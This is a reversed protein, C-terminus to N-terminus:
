IISTATLSTFTPGSGTYGIRVIISGTYAITGFTIYRSTATSNAVVVASVGDSVSGPNGVGSYAANGDVWFTAGSIKVQVLLNAQGISTINSSGIFNLTFVKNSNFTGVNFTVWRIGSIGSYNPGGFSTYNVSPYIYSGNLMQLEDTNVLLSTGSNSGWTGGFGSSPYSGTGSVLRSSENSGDYRFIGTWGTTAGALTNSRNKAQITFALSETYSNSITVNQSGVLGTDGTVTPINSIDGNFSNLGTTSTSAWIPSPAYFYTCVNSISFSTIPIQASPQLSPVGSVFRTMSPMTGMVLNIVSPSNATTNDIYFTTGTKGQGTPHEFYLNRPTIGPTINGSQFTISSFGTCGTWFGAQGSVGFYPDAITYRLIGSSKTTSGSTITTTDIVSGNYDKITFVFTGNITRANVGTGVTSSVTFSPTQTSTVINTTISATGIIRSTSVGTTLVPTSSFASTWNTSPAAPALLLFMENFRDVATGITTGTTFDTFIGDTYSGDEAPGIVGSNTAVYTAVYNNVYSVTTGSATDGSSPTSLNLNSQTITNNAIQKGQIKPM